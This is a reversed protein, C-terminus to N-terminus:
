QMDDWGDYNDYDTNPEVKPEDPWHLDVETLYDEELAEYFFELEKDLFVDYATDSM